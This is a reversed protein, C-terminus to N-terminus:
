IIKWSESELHEFTTMEIERECMGRRRENTRKKKRASLHFTKLMRLFM